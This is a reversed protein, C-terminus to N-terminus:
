KTAARSKLSMQSIMCIPHLAIDPKIFGLNRFERNRVFYKSPIKTTRLCDCLYFEVNVCM